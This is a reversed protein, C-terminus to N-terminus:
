ESIVHLGFVAVPQEMIGAQHLMCVGEGSHDIGIHWGRGLGRCPRPEQQQGQEEQQEESSLFLEGHNTSLKGKKKSKSSSNTFYFLFYYNQAGFRHM